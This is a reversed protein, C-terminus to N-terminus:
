QLPPLNVDAKEGTLPNTPMQALDPMNNPDQPSGAPQTEMVKEMNQASNNSAGQRQMIAYYQQYEPSQMDAMHKSIHKMFIEVLEPDERVSPDSLYDTHSKLHTVHDDTFLVAVEQGDALRENEEKIWMLATTPGDTLPDLSGTQLVLEFDQANTILNNELLTTALELKGATTKSMPNGADVQVRNIEGIDQGTFAKMYSRKAKGVIQAMRPVNAYTKWYNVTDTGVDELLGIYSAQLGMIFQVAVSQVLALAAGSKLSSEPNGRAVSNIGTITEMIQELMKIFNFIEVPTSTFNLAQPPTSGDPYTILTRGVLEAVTPTASEPAVISSVGNAEQNTIIISYLINIAQQISLLDYNVTYGFPTFDMNGPALRRITLVDTPLPGDQLMVSSTYVMKRGKPMAPTRNHYFTFVEIQDTEGQAGSQGMGNLYIYNNPDLVTNCDLGQIIDNNMQENPTGDENTINAYMAVMDYKNKFERLIYWQCSTSKYLIPDRIVDIPNYIQFKVDGEYKKMGTVPDTEYVKGGKSDWSTVVFAEGYLSGTLLAEKLINQQVKQERFTYDLAANGLICQKMSKTDGNTSRCQWVPLQSLALTVAHDVLNKYQNIELRIKEGNTGEIQMSGSNFCAANYYRYSSRWLTMMNQMVYNYYAKTKQSLTDILDEPKQVAWYKEM